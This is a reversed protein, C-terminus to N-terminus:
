DDSNLKISLKKDIPPLCREDNCIMYTVTTDIITENLSSNKKLKIQQEALYNKEFIYVDADFNVDFIKSAKYKEVFTGKTKFRKSKKTNIEVPIPGAELPTLMSYLHWGEEIEGKVQIISGEYDFGLEWTVHNQGFCISAGLMLLAFFIKLM